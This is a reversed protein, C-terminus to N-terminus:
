PLWEKEQQDRWKEDRNRMENLKPAKRAADRMFRFFEKLISSAEGGIDAMPLGKKALETKMKNLDQETLNKAIAANSNKEDIALRKEAMEIQKLSMFSSFIDPMAIQPAVMTAASGSPTSSGQGGAALIPNLGAAQLDKVERQHATNSMREQFAMQETSLQANMYNAERQAQANERNAMIGPLLTAVGPIVTEWFLKHPQHRYM